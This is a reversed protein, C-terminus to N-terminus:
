LYKWKFGKASKEVGRCVRAIHSIGAGVFSAAITVTDFVQLENGNKDLQVVKKSKPHDLGRLPNTQRNLVDYSHKGNESQTAWELMKSRNDTKIGFKHNVTKKGHPNDIFALAVMRHVLVKKEKNNKWISVQLYGNKPYRQSKIKVLHNGDKTGNSKVRGFDSVMYLKEYGVAPRWQEEYKVGDIIEIINELSLNKYYEMFNFGLGFPKDCDGNFPLANSSPQLISYNNQM